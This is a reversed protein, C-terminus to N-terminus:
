GSDSGFAEHTLIVQILFDYVDSRTVSGAGFLRGVIVILLDGPLAHKKM